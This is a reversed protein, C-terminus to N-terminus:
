ENTEGPEKGTIRDLADGPMNYCKNFRSKCHWIQRECRLYKDALRRVNDTISAGSKILEALLEEGVAKKQCEFADIAEQWEAANLMALDEYYDNLHIM